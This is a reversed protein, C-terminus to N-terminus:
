RPALLRYESAYDSAVRRASFRTNICDRAALGFRRAMNPNAALDKLARAIASPDGPAVLMGTRQPEILVRIGAIDSGIVPVGAAFAEMVTRPIGESYSPLM